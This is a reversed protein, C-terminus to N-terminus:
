AQKAVLVCRVVSTTFERTLRGAILRLRKIPVLEFSEFRLDSEAVLKEFRAITMGNLGGAVECFRTAGDTKFDSRWRILAKETFLLHAFPFVSFLHGGLPHYWTPGFVAFVKGHPGLHEYMRNLIAMPDEFHEFADISTIVDALGDFERVFSCRDGLAETEAYGRARELVDDRIDLGFVMRAGHRAIEVADIGFGCGFDLVTKGNIEDWFEPGLLLELKSGDSYADASEGIDTRAFSRLLRYGIEGGILGSM